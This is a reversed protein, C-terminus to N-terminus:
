SDFWPQKRERRAPWSRKAQWCYYLGVSTVTGTALHGWIGHSWFFGVLYALTIAGIAVLSSNPLGMYSDLWEPTLDLRSGHLCDYGRKIDRLRALMLSRFAMVGLLGVTSLVVEFVEQNTM